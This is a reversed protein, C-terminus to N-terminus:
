SGLRRKNEDAKQHVENYIFYIQKIYIKINFFM